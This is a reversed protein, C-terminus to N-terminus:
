VIFGGNDVVEPAPLTRPECNAYLEILLDDPDEGAKARCLFERLEDERIAYTRAV